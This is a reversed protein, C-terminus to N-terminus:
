RARRRRMEAIIQDRVAHKGVPWHPALTLGRPSEATLRHVVAPPSLRELVDAVRSVYTEADLLELGGAQHRRAMETGRVVHFGHVKVGWVGLSGLLSATRREVEATAGPLGVIIHACVKLGRVQLAQVADVFCAVTHGRGLEQLLGDDAIQLGVEVWLETGAALSELLDLAAPPLCDPRTSVALGVVGPVGLAERYLHELREVPGYTASYGQFYAIFRRVGYREGVRAM